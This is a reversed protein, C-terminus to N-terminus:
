KSLLEAAEQDLLWTAPGNIPKVLGAPFATEDGKDGLIRSVIEAKSRGSVLFVVRAGSNIVTPTLTVRWSKFKEVYLPVAVRESKWSKECGPFLSATHGDEGIGLFILNFAPLSTGEFCSLIDEEYRRAAEEPPLEGEIRHINGQPIPVKSLLARHANGFNSDPSEPPVCREDAWFLHLRAWDIRGRYQDSALLSFLRAPTSGGSVVVSVDGRCEGMLGLLLSAAEHSLGDLDPTVVVRGTM